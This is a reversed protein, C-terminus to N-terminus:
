WCRRPRDAGPAQRAPRDRAPRGVPRRAHAANRRGGGGADARWETSFDVRILAVCLALYIALGGLLPMPRVHMKHPKPEDIFGTHTAVRGILPTAVFAALFSLIILPLYLDMRLIVAPAFRGIKGGILEEYLATMASLMRERGFREEVERRAQECM